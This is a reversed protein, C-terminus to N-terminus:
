RCGCGDVVMEKYNKLVVKGEDDLYLMSISKLQTPVCCTKPVKSPNVSNMLTQVIAHNTTNLHDALPFNCEGQCHYADYGPPAVIWDSWGVESFDVYMKHRSCPEPKDDRRRNHRKTARRRRQMQTMEEGTKQKNRGDDTYAFLVPRTESWSNEDQDASRRLRVHHAPTTKNRGTGSIIILLGHNTKPDEFWREVAPFVDLSLTINKRTDILLIRQYYEDKDGEQAIWEVIQRSLTLEAAKLKEEKPVNSVDFKLRFRHHGSVPFGCSDRGIHTFSRITNASRTHIGRKPISATELPFGMQREYLDVMAQPIVVKTKDVKPRGKFGFLSLLNTEVEALVEKSLNSSTTRWCCELVALIILWCMRNFNMTSNVQLHNGSLEIATMELPRCCINGMTAFM